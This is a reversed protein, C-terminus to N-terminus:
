CWSGGGPPAIDQAETGSSTSPTSPAGRSASHPHRGVCCGGARRAVERWPPTPRRGPGRAETGSGRRLPWFSRLASGRAAATSQASRRAGRRHGGVSAVGFGLQVGDELARRLALLFGAAGLGGAVAAEGEGLQLLDALGGADVG